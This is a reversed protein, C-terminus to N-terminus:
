LYKGVGDARVECAAVFCFVASGTGGVFYYLFLVLFYM